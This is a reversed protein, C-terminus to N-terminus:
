EGELRAAAAPRGRSDAAQAPPAVVHDDDATDVHIGGVDLVGKERNRLGGRVILQDDFAGPQHVLQGNM